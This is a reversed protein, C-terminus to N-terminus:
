TKTEDPQTSLLKQTASILSWLLEPTRLRCHDHPLFGDTGHWGVTHEIAHEM